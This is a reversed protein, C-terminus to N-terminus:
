SQMVYNYALSGRFLKILVPLLYGLGKALLVSYIGDSEPLKYSDFTGKAGGRERITAATVSDVKEM